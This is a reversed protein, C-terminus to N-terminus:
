EAISKEPAERNKQMFTKLENDLSESM